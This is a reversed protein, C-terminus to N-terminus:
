GIVSKKQLSVRSRLRRLLGRLLRGIVVPRMAVAHGAAVLGSFYRKQRLSLRAADLWVDAIQSPEAYKLDCKLMELTAKLAVSYEGVMSMNRIWYQDQSVIDTRQVTESIGLVTLAAPTIEKISNLPDPNGNRRSIASAQAARYTLTQERRKRMSTQDPHIRYKLVVQNLNACESHEAIRLWLDYDESSSAFVARYGGVLAFIETRILVTPQKLPCSLPLLLASQIERNEAPHRVTLLSRGAGDIWEFAGGVVGVEPHKEMFDVQWTLRDKAAIDDADMIAIYQGQALVCGANRAEALGCRPIMHLKIRIDNAAYRSAIAESRDTSGFDVIIFEFDRFTQGLISEISEALFRDVNCVVMVVSVLPQKM